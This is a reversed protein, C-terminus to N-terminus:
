VDSWDEDDWTTWSDPTMVTDFRTPETLAIGIFPYADVYVWDGEWREAYPRHYAPPATVTLRLGLRDADALASEIAAGQLRVVHRAMRDGVVAATTAARERVSDLSDFRIGGRKVTVEAMRIAGRFAMIAEAALGTPARWGGAAILGTERGPDAANEDAM